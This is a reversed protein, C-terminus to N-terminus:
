RRRKLSKCFVKFLYEAGYSCLWVSFLAVLIVGAYIVYRLIQTSLVYTNDVYVPLFSTSFYMYVVAFISLPVIIIGQLMYITAKIRNKVKKSM